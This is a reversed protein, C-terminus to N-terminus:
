EVIFKVTKNQNCQADFITAFYVGKSLNHASIMQTGNKESIFQKYVSQGIINTIEIYNNEDASTFHYTIKSENVVPSPFINLDFIVGEGLLSNVNTSGKGVIEVNAWDGNIMGYGTKLDNITLAQGDLKRVTIYYCTGRNDWQSPTYNTSRLYNSSADDNWLFRSDNGSISIDESMDVIKLTQPNYELGLDFGYAIATDPTFYNVAIRYDTSNLKEAKQLNINFTFPSLTKEQDETKLYYNSTYYKSTYNVVDGLLIGRFLEKPSDACQEQITICEPVNPVNDRWYRVKGDNFPYATSIKFDPNTNMIDPDIFRWDLSPKGKQNQVQKFETIEGVLRRQLQTIDNARVSDSMNVDAAIMQGATPIFVNPCSSLVQQDVCSYNNLTTIYEMARTDRANVHDLLNLKTNNNIDRKIQIVNKSSSVPVNFTNSLNTGQYTGLVKGGCSDLVTITNLAGNITGTNHTLEQYFLFTGAKKYPQYYELTGAFKGTGTVTFTGKDWCVPREFYTYSESMERMTFDFTTGAAPSKVVTFPVCIVLGSDVFQPSGPGPYNNYYISINAHGINKDTEVSPATNVSIAYTGPFNIFRVVKGLNSNNVTTVPSVYRKDYRLTFDMGIIGKRVPVLANIPVCINKDSSGCVWKVDAIDYEFGVNITHQASASRGAADHVVVQYTTNVTPKVILSDATGLIISSGVKTWEYTLPYTVCNGPSNPVVAKLVIPSSGSENGCIVNGGNIKVTFSDPCAKYRPVITDLESLATGCFASGTTLISTKSTAVYTNCGSAVKADFDLTITENRAGQVVAGAFPVTNFVTDKMNINYVEKNATTSNDSVSYFVPRSLAAAGYRLVISNTDLTLGDPFDVLYNVKNVESGTSTLTYSYHIKPNSCDGSSAASVVGQIGSAISYAKIEQESYYCLNSYSTVTSPWNNCDWGYGAFFSAPTNPDNFCKSLSGNIILNINTNVGITSHRNFPDVKYLVTVINGSTSRTIESVELPQPSTLSISGFQTQDYRITVFPFKAPSGNSGNNLAFNINFKSTTVAVVGTTSLTSTLQNVPTALEYGPYESVFVDKDTLSDLDFYAKFRYQKGLASTDSTQQPTFDRGAPIEGCVAENFIHVYTIVHEDVQRYVNQNWGKTPTLDTVTNYMNPISLNAMTYTIGNIKASTAAGSAVGPGHYTGYNYDKPTSKGEDYMTSEIATLRYGEPTLADIAEIMPAPRFENVFLKPFEYTGISSFFSLVRYKYGNKISKRSKQFSFAKSNQLM